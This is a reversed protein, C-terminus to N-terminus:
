HRKISTTKVELAKPPPATNPLIIGSKWKHQLPHVQTPHQQVSSPTRHAELGSPVHQRNLVGDNQTKPSHNAFLSLNHEHSKVTDQLGQNKMETKEENQEKKEVDYPLEENLYKNFSKKEEASM